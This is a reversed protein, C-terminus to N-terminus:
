QKGRNAPGYRLVYQYSANSHGISREFAEDLAGPTILASQRYKELYERSDQQHNHFSIVQFITPMFKNTVTDFFVSMDCSTSAPSYSSTHQPKFSELRGSFRTLDIKDNCNRDVYDTVVSALLYEILADNAPDIVLSPGELFVIGSKYKLNLSLEYKKAATKIDLIEQAALELHFSYRNGKKSSCIRDMIDYTEKYLELWEECQLLLRESDNEKLLEKKNQAIM